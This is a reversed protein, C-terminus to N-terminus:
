PMTWRHRRRAAGGRDVVTLPLAHWLYDYPRDWDHHFIGIDLRYAGPPLDLRAFELRVTGSPLLRGTSVGDASTNVDVLIAPPDITRVSVQFIAESIERETSYDIEVVLPEGPYITGTEAGDGGRLRVAIIEVERSGHRTGGGPLPEPPALGEDVANRYRDVIEGTDGAARVLGDQLWIARDTLRVVQDLDHSALVITTGGAKLEDMRAACRQQFRLDGVSLVEDVLLISPDISIATAFALRLKMGDSYTRLPHEIEDELEAFAVIRPLRQRAERLTLGALLAGTIANETGSLLPHFSEGLTLLGSVDRAALVEGSTPRTLGAALRLLTSKGSGNRGVLGVTEGREIGVSVDRLAWTEQRAGTETLNRLTRPLGSALRRYRKGVGRLELDIM